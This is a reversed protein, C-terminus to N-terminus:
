HGQIVQVLAQHFPLFVQFILMMWLWPTMVMTMLVYIAVCAFVKKMM